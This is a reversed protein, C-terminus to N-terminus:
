DTNLLKSKDGIEVVEERVVGKRSNKEVGIAFVQKYIDLRVVWSRKQIVMRM